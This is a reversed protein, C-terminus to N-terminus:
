IVYCIWFNCPKFNDTIIETITVDFYETLKEINQTELPVSPEEINKDEYNAWYAFWGSDELDYEIKVKNDFLKDIISEFTKCDLKIVNRINMVSVNRM